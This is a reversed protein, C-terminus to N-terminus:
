SDNTLLNIIKIKNQIWWGLADKDMAIIREDSFGKWEQHSHQECGIALVDKTYAIHYTPDEINKIEKGNGKCGQIKAGELNTSHLNASTFDACVLSAKRFDAYLLYTNTFDAKLLCARYLITEEMRANKFSANLLCSRTLDAENLSADNFNIRNMSRLSLDKCDFNMGSCNANVLSVTALYGKKYVKRKFKKM